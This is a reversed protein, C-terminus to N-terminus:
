NLWKALRKMKEARNLNLYRFSSTPSLHGLTEQIDKVTGGNDLILHAKGHRFSHPVIRKKIGCVTAYRRIIREITRAPPFLLTPNLSLYTELFVHTDKGWAILRKKTTKETWIEATRTSLDIDERKLSSVEGIRAGTDYLMRVVVIDRLGKPTDPQIHSLMAVYEEPTIPEYAISRARPVRIEDAEITAGRKQHFALYNKTAGMVFHVTGESYKEKLFDSWSVVERFTIGEMGKGAHEHFKEIWHRYLEVTKPKDCIRKRDLYDEVFKDM